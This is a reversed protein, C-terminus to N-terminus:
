AGVQRSSARLARWNIVVLTIIALNVLLGLSVARPGTTFLYLWSLLVAAVIAIWGGALRARLLLHGAACYAVALVCEVIAFAFLGRAMERIGITSMVGAIGGVGVLVGWLWCLVSAILLGTPPPNSPLRHTSLRSM